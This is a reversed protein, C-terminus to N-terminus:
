EPELSPRIREGKPLRLFAQVTRLRTNGALYTRLRVLEDAFFFIGPEISAIGPILAAELSPRLPFVL